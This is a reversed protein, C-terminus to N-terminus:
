LMLNGLLEDHPEKKTHLMETLFHPYDRFFNLVNFCIVEIINNDRAKKTRTSKKVKNM